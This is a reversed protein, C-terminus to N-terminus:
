KVESALDKSQATSRVAESLIVPSYDTFIGAIFQM